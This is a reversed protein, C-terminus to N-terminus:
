SYEEKKEISSESSLKKFFEEREKKYSRCVGDQEEPNNKKIWRLYFDSESYEKMKSISYREKDDIMWLDTDAMGQMMKVGHLVTHISPVIVLIVILPTLKLKSMSDLEHFSEISGGLLGYIAGVCLVGLPLLGFYVMLLNWNLVKEKNPVISYYMWGVEILDESPNSESRLADIISAQQIDKYNSM